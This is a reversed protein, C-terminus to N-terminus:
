GRKTAVILLQADTSVPSRAAEGCFWCPDPGFASEGLRTWEAESVRESADPWASAGRSGCDRMRNLGQAILHRLWAARTPVPPDPLTAWQEPPEGLWDDTDDLENGLDDVIQLEEDTLEDQAVQRPDGAGNGEKGANM